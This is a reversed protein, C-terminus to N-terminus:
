IKKLDEDSLGNPNKQNNLHIKMKVSPQNDVLNEKDM